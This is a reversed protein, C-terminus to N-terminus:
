GAYLKSKAILEEIDIQNLKTDSVFLAEFLYYLFVSKVRYNKEYEVKLCHSFLQDLSAGTTFANKKRWAIEKPLLKKEEAMERLIAKVEIGHYKYQYPISLGFEIIAKEWFPHIIEMNFHQAVFPSMEGTWAARKCWYESITNIRSKDEILLFDGLIIDAGYGTFLQTVNKKSEKIVHYFGVYGEAYLPDCIENHWVSALFGEWFGSENISIEQHTTTLYKQVEKANKFENGFPTGITYTYIKHLSKKLMAAILSSDVGGSIPIGVADSNLKDQINESLLNYLKEKIEQKSLSKTISNTSSFKTKLLSLKSLNEYNVQYFCDPLIREFNQLFCFEPPVKKTYEYQYSDLPIMKRTIFNTNVFAKLESTIFITDDTKYVYAQMLGANGITFRLKKAATDHAIFTFCGKCDNIFNWGNKNLLFICLEIDSLEKEIKHQVRLRHIGDIKGSLYYTANKSIIFSTKSSDVLVRINNEQRWNENSNIFLNKAVTNAAINKETGIHIFFSHM